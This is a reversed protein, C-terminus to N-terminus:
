ITLCQGVCPLSLPEPSKLLESQMDLLRRCTRDPDRAPRDIRDLLTKRNRVFRFGVSISRDKQVVQICTIRWGIPACPESASASIGFRITICSWDVEVSLDMRDERAKRVTVPMPEVPPRHQRNCQINRQAIMQCTHFDLM